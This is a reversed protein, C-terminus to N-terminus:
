CYEGTTDPVMEDFDADIQELIWPSEEIVVSILRDLYVKQRSAEKVIEKLATMLKEKSVGEVKLSDMTMKYYQAEGQISVGKRSQTHLDTAAKLAADKQRRLEWICEEKATLEKQLGEIVSQQDKVLDKLEVLEDQLTCRDKLDTIDKQPVGSIIQDPDMDQVQMDTLVKRLGWWRKDAFEGSSRLEMRRVAPDCWIVLEIEECQSTVGEVLRQVDSTSMPFLLHGNMELIRDGAKVSRSQLSEEVSGIILQGKNDLQFTMGFQGNTKRLHVCCVEQATKGDIFGYLSRKDPTKQHLKKRVPKNLTGGGSSKLSGTSSQSDGGPSNQRVFTDGRPSREPDRLVKQRRLTVVGEGSKLERVDSESKKRLKPTPSSTTSSPSSPLVSSHGSALVVPVSQSRHFASSKDKALTIAAQYKQHEVATQLRHTDDEDTNQELRLLEYVEALLLERDEISIHDYGELFPLQLDALEIGAVHHRQFLLIFKHLKRNELWRIVDSTGWQKLQRTFSQERQVTSQSGSSRRQDGQGSSTNSWDSHLLEETRKQQQQLESLTTDIRQEQEMNVRQLQALNSTLKQSSRELDQRRISMQKLVKRPQGHFGQTEM